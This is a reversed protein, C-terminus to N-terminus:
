MDAQCSVVVPSCPGHATCFFPLSPYSDLKDEYRKADTPVCRRLDARNSDCRGALDFSVVSTAGREILMEVLRQGVFGSGGTVVCRAPVSGASAMGGLRKDQKFSASTAKVMKNDFSSVESLHLPHSGKRGNREREREEQQEKAM